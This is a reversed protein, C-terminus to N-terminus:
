QSPYYDKKAQNKHLERNGQQLQYESRSRRIQETAIQTAIVFLHRYKTYIYCLKGKNSVETYM